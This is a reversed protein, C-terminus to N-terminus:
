SEALGKPGPRGAWRGNVWALWDHPYASVCLEGPVARFASGYLAEEFQKRWPQPVDDVRVYHHGLHERIPVAAILENKTM